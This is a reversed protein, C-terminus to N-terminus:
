TSVLVKETKLVNKMLITKRHSPWTRCLCIIKEMGLWDLIFICHDNESGIETQFHKLWQFKVRGKLYCLSKHFINIGMMAFQTSLTDNSIIGNRIGNIATSWSFSTICVNTIIRYFFIHFPKIQWIKGSAKGIVDFCM